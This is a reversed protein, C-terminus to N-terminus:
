VGVSIRVTQGYTIRRLEYNKNRQKLQHPRITIIRLDLLTLDVRILGYPIFLMIIVRARLHAAGDLFTDEPM